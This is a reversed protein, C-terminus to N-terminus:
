VEYIIQQHHPQHIQSINDLAEKFDDSDYRTWDKDVVTYRITRYHSTFCAEGQRCVVTVKTIEVFTMDELFWLERMVAEDVLATSHWAPYQLILCAKQDFLEPGHYKIALDFTGDTEYEYVTEAHYRLGQALSEMDLENIVPYLEFEKSDPYMGLFAEKVAEFVGKENYM